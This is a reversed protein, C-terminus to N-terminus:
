VHTTKHGYKLHLATAHSSNVWQLTPISIRCQGIRVKEAQTQYCTGKSTPVESLGILLLILSRSLSRSSSSTPSFFSSHASPFAPSPPVNTILKIRCLFPSFLALLM